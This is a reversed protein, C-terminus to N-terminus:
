KEEQSLNKNNTRAEGKPWGGFPYPQHNSNFTLYCLVQYIYTSLSQGLKLLRENKHGTLLILILQFVVVATLVVEALSYLIVFLLMYLIRSWTDHSKLNQKLEEDM